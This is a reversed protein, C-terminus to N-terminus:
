RLLLMKRTETTGQTALKYFYIGNSVTRGATDSKDWTLTKEGKELWGSCLTKVLQGKVNYVSLEAWGAKPMTFSISTDSNFPNPQNQELVSSAPVASEDEAATTTFNLEMFRVYGGDNQGTPSPLQFSGWSLDDYFMLALKGSFDNGGTGKVKNAPYVWMPKMNALEPTEVKNLSIPDSWSFGGDPSCSIWIEPTDAFPALEPYDNP